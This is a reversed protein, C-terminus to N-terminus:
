LLLEQIMEITIGSDKIQPIDAIHYLNIGLLAGVNDPDADEGHFDSGFTLNLALERALLIHRAMDDLSAHYKQSYAKPCIEIGQLGFREKLQLLNSREMAEGWEYRPMHALVTKGSYKKLMDMTDELLSTNDESDPTFVAKCAQLAAKASEFYGKSVLEKAVHSKGIYASEPHDNRIKEFDIRKWNDNLKMKILDNRTRENRKEQMPKLDEELLETEEQTFDYYLLHMTAGGYLTTIEVGTRFDIGTKKAEEAADKIDKVTDHNTVAFSDVGRHKLSSSLKSPYWTGDSANTHIHWDITRYKEM